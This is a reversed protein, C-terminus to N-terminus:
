RSKEFFVKDITMGHREVPKVLTGPGFIVATRSQVDTAFAGTQAFLNTAIISLSMVVAPRLM